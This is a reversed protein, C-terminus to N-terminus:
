KKVTPLVIPWFLGNPMKMNGCVGKWDAEGMFGDLPTYAALAFMLVDSTERSTMLVQKLGKARELEAARGVEPVLLSKLKEGGHPAVLKSM